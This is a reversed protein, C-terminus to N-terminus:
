SPSGSQRRPLVVQLRRREQLIGGALDFIASVGVVPSLPLAMATSAKIGISRARQQTIVLKPANPSCLVAFDGLRQEDLGDIPLALLSDGSAGIRIPRRAQLESLARSVSICEANGLLASNASSHAASM